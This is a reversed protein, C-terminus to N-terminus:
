TASRLFLHVGWLYRNFWWAPSALREDVCDQGAAALYNRGALCLSQYPGLWRASVEQGIQEVGV